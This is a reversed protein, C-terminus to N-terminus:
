WLRETTHDAYWADVQARLAARSGNNTLVTDSILEREEDSAQLAMRNKADDPEMGRAVARDLRLQEDASVTIVEDALDRFGESEALLPVEVAVLRGADIGQCSGGVLLDALRARVPPWCIANLRAADQPTAFARSALLRRDLAGDCDIIDSGFAEALESQVEPAEQTEKALVDLDIVAAGKAGLMECVSKKGSALGGTVFVVYM